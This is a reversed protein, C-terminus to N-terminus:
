TTDVPMYETDGPRGMWENGELFFLHSKWDKNSNLTEFIVKLLSSKSAFSYM